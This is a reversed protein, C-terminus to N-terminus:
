LDNESGDDGARRSAADEVAGRGIGRDGGQGVSTAVLLVGDNLLRGEDLLYTRLSSICM